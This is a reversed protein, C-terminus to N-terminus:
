RRAFCNARYTHNYHQHKGIETVEVKSLLGKELYKVLHPINYPTTDGWIANPNDEPTPDIVLAEMYELSRGLFDATKEMKRRSKSIQTYFLEQKTLVSLVRSLIIYRAKSPDLFAKGRRLLYMLDAQFAIIRDDGDIEDFIKQANELGSESIDYAIVSCGNQNALETIARLGDGRGVGCYHVEGPEKWRTSLLKKYCEYEFQGLETMSCDHLQPDFPGSRKVEAPIIGNKIKEDWQRAIRPSVNDLLEAAIMQLRDQRVMRMSM